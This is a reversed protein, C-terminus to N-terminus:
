KTVIQQYTVLLENVTTWATLKEPYISLIFDAILKMDTHFTGSPFGGIICLLHDKAKKNLSILYERLNTPKGTDSFVVTHDANLKEVVTNLSINSTIELLTKEGTQIIQKEFLQEMLGIFRTYNRMIRTEPNITIVDNNRTHIIINEIMNKKNIISELVCLLFIHAIDPRGRRRGEPLNKMASHHFSADLILQSPKKKKQKASMRVSPHSLISQPIRALEAEALILSIV